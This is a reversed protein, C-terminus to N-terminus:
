DTVAQKSLRKPSAFRRYQHTYDSILAATAGAVFENGWQM